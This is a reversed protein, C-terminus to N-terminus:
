IGLIIMLFVGSIIDTNLYIFVFNPLAHEWAGRSIYKRKTRLFKLGPMRSTRCQAGM